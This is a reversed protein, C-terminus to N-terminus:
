KFHKPIAHIEVPSIRSFTSAGLLFNSEAPKRGKDRDLSWTIHYTRGDERVHTGGVEVVLCELSDDSLYGIVRIDTVPPLPVDSGVGFAWTVHHGIFDAFKPPFIALLKNRSVEDLEYAIYSM